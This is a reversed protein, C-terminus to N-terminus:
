SIARLANFHEHSPARECGTKRRASVDKRATAYIGEIRCRMRMGLAAGGLAIQAQCLGDGSNAFAKLFQTNQQSVACVMAHGSGIVNSQKIATLWKSSLACSSAQFQSCVLHENQGM